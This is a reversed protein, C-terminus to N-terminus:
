RQKLHTNRLNNIILYKHVINFMSCLAGVPMKDNMVIHRIFKDMLKKRRLFVFFSNNECFKQFFM